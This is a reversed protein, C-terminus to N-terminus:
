RRVAAVVGTISPYRHGTSEAIDVTRALSDFRPDRYTRSGWRGNTVTWGQQAARLDQAILGSYVARTLGAAVRARAWARLNAPGALSMSSM